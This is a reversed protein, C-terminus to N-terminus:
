SCAREHEKWRKHTRRKSQGKYKRKCTACTIEYIGAMKRKDKLNVLHEELTGRSTYFSSIGHKKSVKIIKDTLPPCFDLALMRNERTEQNRERTERSLTTLNRLERKKENKIQIGKIINDPYGNKRAMEFIYETEKKFGLKSLPLANCHIDM